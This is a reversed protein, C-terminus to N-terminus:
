TVHMIHKMDGHKPFTLRLRFCYYLPKVNRYLIVRRRPPVLESEQGFFLSDADDHSGMLSLTIAAGHLQSLSMRAQFSSAPVNDAATQVKLHAKM